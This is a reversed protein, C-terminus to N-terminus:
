MKSETTEIYKRAYRIAVMDNKDNRNAYEIFKKYAYVSLKQDIKKLTDGYSIWADSSTPHTETWQRMYPLADEKSMFGKYAM